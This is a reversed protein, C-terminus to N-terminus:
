IEGPPRSVAEVLQRAVGAPGPASSLTVKSRLSPRLRQLEELAFGDCLVIFLRDGELLELERETWERGLFRPSLIAVGYNAASAGYAIVADLRDNAHVEGADLWVRQGEAELAEALPRAFREKDTSAHSIFFDWRDVADWDVLDEYLPENALEIRCGLARLRDLLSAPGVVRKLAV